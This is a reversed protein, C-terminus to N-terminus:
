GYGKTLAQGSGSDPYVFRGMGVSNGFLDWESGDDPLLKFLQTGHDAYATCSMLAMAGAALIPNLHKM